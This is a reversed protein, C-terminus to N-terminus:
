CTHKTGYFTDSIANGHYASLISRPRYSRGSTCNRQVSYGAIFAVGSATRWPSCELEAWYNNVSWIDVCNMNALLDAAADCQSYGRATIYNDPQESLPYAYSWCDIVHSAHARLGHRERSYRSTSALPVVPRNFTEPTHVSSRIASVSQGNARLLELVDPAIPSTASVAPAYLEEPRPERAGAPAASVSGIAILAAVATFARLGARKM